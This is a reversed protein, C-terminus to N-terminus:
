ILLYQALFLVTQNYPALFILVYVIFHQKPRLLSLVLFKRGYVSQSKLNPIFVFDTILGM